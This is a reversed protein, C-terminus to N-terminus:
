CNMASHWLSSAQDMVDADVRLINHDTEISPKMPMAASELCLLGRGLSHARVALRATHLKLEEISDKGRKGRGITGFRYAKLMHLFAHASCDTDPPQLRGQAQM